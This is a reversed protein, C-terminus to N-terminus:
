VACGHIPPPQLVDRVLAELELRLPNWVKYITMNEELYAKAEFDGHHGAIACAIVRAAPEGWGDQSQLHEQIWEASRAEHRFAEQEL